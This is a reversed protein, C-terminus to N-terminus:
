DLLGRLTVSTRIGRSKECRFHMLIKDFFQLCWPRISQNVPRFFLNERFCCIRFRVEIAKEQIKRSVLRENPKSSQSHGPEQTNGTPPNASRTKLCWDYSGCAHVFLGFECRLYALPFCNTSRLPYRIVVHYSSWPNVPVSDALLGSNRRKSAFALFLRNSATNSESCLRIDRSSTNSAM